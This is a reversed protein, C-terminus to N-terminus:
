RETVYIELDVSATNAKLYLTTVANDLPLVAHEGAKLRMFYAGTGIGVQVYNTSDANFFHAFGTGNTLDGSISFSEETTGVSVRRWDFHAGTTTVSTSAIQREFADTDNRLRTTIRLTAM